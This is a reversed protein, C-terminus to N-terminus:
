KTQYQPLASGLRPFVHGAVNYAEPEPRAGFDERAHPGRMLVAPLSCALPQSSM